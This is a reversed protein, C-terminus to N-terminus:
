KAAPKGGSLSSEGFPGDVVAGVDPIGPIMTNIGTYPDRENERLGFMQQPDPGEGPAFPKVIRPTVIFLLESEDKQFNTSRFLAGLIPIDGLLPVKAVQQRVQTNILGALAFTEGDKLELTTAARSSRILPVTFGQQSVGQSFDLSSVEPAVRLSITQDERVVPTFVLQVGFPKFEITISTGGGTGQSVPYPFEGGSLFKAEKGSLTILNPKALTRLLGQQATATVFAAYDRNGSAVFFTMLDSFAFNPSDGGLFGGFPSLGPVFVSGPFAAGMFSKGLAIWSVGFENLARRDVEAVHVQLLVQHTRLDVGRLLNVVKKPAFIEAVAGVQGIMEESGVNGSLIITDKAVRVDIEDRPAITKLREKLLGIDTQVVVDFYMTKDSYLVILSTVGAAKGHILVQNPTVIFIDAIAPNTVSIHNFPDKFDLVQSKGITVEIRLVRAATSQADTPRIQAQAAGIATAAVLVAAVLLGLTGQRMAPIMAGGEHTEDNAESDLEM